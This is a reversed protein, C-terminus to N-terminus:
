ARDRHPWPRNLRMVTWNLFAAFSVWALYPLLLLWPWTGLPLAAWILSVISLWLAIVEAFAWDPRRWAFFLVSWFVNLLGNVVFLVALLARYNGSPAAEWATVVAAVIFAYITTWAPGFLWDPPQWSPKKLSRYWPGIDTAKAGAVAVAITAAVAVIITWAIPPLNLSM